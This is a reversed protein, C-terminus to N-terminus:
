KKRSKHKIEDIEEMTLPKLNPNGVPVPNKGKRSIRLARIYALLSQQEVKDMEEVESVISQLTDNLTIVIAMVM